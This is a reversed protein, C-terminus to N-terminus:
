EFWHLPHIPPSLQAFRLSPHDILETRSHSVLGREQIHPVPFVAAVVSDTGSGHCAKLRGAGPM